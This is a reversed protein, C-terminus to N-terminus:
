EWEAHRMVILGTLHKIRQATYGRECLHIAWNLNADRKTQEEKVRRREEQKEQQLFKRAENHRFPHNAADLYHQRESEWFASDGYEEKTSCNGMRVLIEKESRKEIKIVSIPTSSIRMTANQVCLRATYVPTGSMHTPLSANQVYLFLARHPYGSEKRHTPISVNQVYFNGSYSRWLGTTCSKTRFKLSM